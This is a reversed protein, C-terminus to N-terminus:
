KKLLAIFILGISHQRRFKRACFKRDKLAEWLVLEAQTMHERLYKRTDKLYTLNYLKTAM